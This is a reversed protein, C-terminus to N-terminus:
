LLQRARFGVEEKEGTNRPKIRGTRNKQQHSYVEEMPLKPLLLHWPVARAPVTWNPLVVSCDEHSLDRAPVSQAM